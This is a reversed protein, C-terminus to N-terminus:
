CPQVGGGGGGSEQEGRELSIVKRRELEMGVGMGGLVVWGDMLGEKEAIMGAIGLGRTM